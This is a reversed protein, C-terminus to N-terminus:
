GSGDKPPRPFIRPKLVALAILIPIAIVLWRPRLALVIIIVPIAGFLWAPMHKVEPYAVWWVALLTGLRWCAAELQQGSAREPPWIWFVVAGFLLLLALIGLTHRQM